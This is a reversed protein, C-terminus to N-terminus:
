KTGMKKDIFNKWSEPLLGRQHMSSLIYYIGFTLGGYFWYPHHRKFQKVKGEKVM